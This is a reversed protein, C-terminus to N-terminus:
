GLSESMNFVVGDIRIANVVLRNICLSELIDQVHMYVRDQNILLTKEQISRKLNQQVMIM